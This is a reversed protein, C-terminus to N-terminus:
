YKYPINNYFLLLTYVDYDNRLIQPYSVYTRGEKQEEAKNVYVSLDLIDEVILLDYNEIPKNLDLIIRVQGSSVTGNGYSSVSMFDITLPTKMNRILDSFFGVSGKLICVVVPKRGEYLKDLQKAVAKVRRKIQQETLMVYEVNPHKEM